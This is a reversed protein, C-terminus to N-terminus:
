ASQKFPVQWMCLVEYDDPQIFTTCRKLMERKARRKEYTRLVKGRMSSLQNNAKIAM